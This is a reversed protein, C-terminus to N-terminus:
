KFLIYFITGFSQWHLCCCLCIIRYYKVIKKTGLFHGDSEISLFYLGQALNKLDLSTEINFFALDKQFVLQGQLSYLRLKNNTTCSKLHIQLPKENSILPSEISYYSDTCPRTQIPFQHFSFAAYGAPNKVWIMENNYVPDDVLSYSIADADQHNM